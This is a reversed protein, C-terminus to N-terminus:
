HQITKLEFLFFTAKIHTETNSPLPWHHLIRAVCTTHHSHIFRLLSWVRQHAFQPRFLLSPSYSTLYPLFSWQKDKHLLLITSTLDALVAQASYEGISLHRPVLSSDSNYSHWRYAIRISVIISLFSISIRYIDIHSIM